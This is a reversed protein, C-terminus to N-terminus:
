LTQRPAVTVWRRRPLPPCEHFAHANKMDVCCDTVHGAYISIMTFSNGRYITSEIEAAPLIELRGIAPTLLRRHEDAAQRRGARRSLLRGAAHIHGEKHALIRRGAPACELPAARGILARAKFHRPIEAKVDPGTAEQHRRADIYFFFTVILCAIAPTDHRGDCYAHRQQRLIPM